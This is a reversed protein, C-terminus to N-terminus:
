SCNDNMFEMYCNFMDESIKSWSHNKEVFLRGNASIRKSKGQDNILNIVSESFSDWDDNIIINKNHSLGLGEAGKSTSITPIGASLYNLIKLRTGSGSILPAIAITAKNFISNLNDLPGTFNIEKNRYMKLIRKPFHGVVTFKVNNVSKKVRPIIENAIIELAELNPSYFLHGLFIINKENFNPGVFKIQETDVGNKVVRIKDKDVGINVLRKKDLNSVTTIFDAIKCAKKELLITKKIEDKTAGLDKLLVYIADHAEYCLLRNEKLKAGHTLVIKPYNLQIANIKEKNLLSKMFNINYYDEKKILFSSFREKKYLRYDSWKRYCKIISVNCFNQLGRALNLIRNTGGEYSPIFPGEVFIGIKPNRTKNSKNIIGYRCNNYKFFNPFRNKAYKGEKKMEILWHPYKDNM